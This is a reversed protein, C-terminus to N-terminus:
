QAHRKLTAADRMCKFEIFFVYLKLPECIQFRLARSCSYTCCCFKNESFFTGIYM